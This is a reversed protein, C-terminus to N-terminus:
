GRHVCIEGNTKGHNFRWRILPMSGTSLRKRPHYYRDLADLDIIAQRMKLQADEILAALEKRKRILGGIVHENEM